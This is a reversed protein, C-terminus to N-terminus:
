AVVCFKVIAATQGFILYIKIGRVFFDYISVISARKLVFEFMVAGSFHNLPADAKYQERDNM